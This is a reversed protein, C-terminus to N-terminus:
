NQTGYAVLSIPLVLLQGRHELLASGISLEAVGSGGNGVNPQHQLGLFCGLLLILQWLEATLLM